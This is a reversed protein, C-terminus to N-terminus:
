GGWGGPPPRPRFFPFSPFPVPAPLSHASPALPTPPVLPAPLALPAPAAHPRVRLIEGMVEASAGGLSQTYSYFDELYAQSAATLLRRRACATACGAMRCLAWCWPRRRPQLSPGRQAHVAPALSTWRNQMGIEGRAPYPRAIARPTPAHSQARADRAKYLTNRIIEINLETFDTGDGSFHQQAYAAAGRRRRRGTRAGAGACCWQHSALCAFGEKGM